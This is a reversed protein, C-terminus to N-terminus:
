SGTAALVVSATQWLIKLDLTLAWHEIYELDLQVNREFSADQRATVQWLGTIGPTVQLRMRHSPKYHQCEDVPHPRPGVLSMEGKLVNWFQPIEDLSYRRLFHGVRTVRPDCALKFIPGQRENRNLLAAKLADAGEVMSRIKWCLFVKGNKGARPAKYFVPGRSDIKVLIAVIGLLPASLVLAAISFFIDMQRKIWRGLGANRGALSSSGALQTNPFGISSM